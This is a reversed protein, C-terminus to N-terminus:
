KNKSNKIKEYAEDLLSIRDLLDNVERAFSEGTSEAAARIMELKAKAEMREHILLRLVEQKNM